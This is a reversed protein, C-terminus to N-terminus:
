GPTTEVSRLGPRESVRPLTFSFAAGGEPAREVWMQGGNEEICTRARELGRQRSRRGNGPASTELVRDREGPPVGPGADRVSIVVHSEDGIASVHVPSGAPAFKLANSLLAWLVEDVAAPDAQVQMGLPVFVVVRDGALPRHLQVCRDVAAELDIARPRAPPRAVGPGAAPIATAAAETIPQARMAEVPIPLKV